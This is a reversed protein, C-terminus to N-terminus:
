ARAHVFGEPNPFAVKGRMLADDDLADLRSLVV